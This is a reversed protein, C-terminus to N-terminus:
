VGDIGYGLLKSILRAHPVRDFAKSYDLYIVDVSKGCEIAHTWDKMVNILQTVCSYGPWFGHQYATFLNNLDFHGHMDAYLARGQIWNVSTISLLIVAM